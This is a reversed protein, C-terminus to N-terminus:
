IFSEVTMADWYHALPAKAPDEKPIAKAWRNIRFIYYQMQLLAIINVNTPIDSKYVSPKKQLEM